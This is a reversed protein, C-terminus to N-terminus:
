ILVFLFTAGSSLVPGLTERKEGVKYEGVLSPGFFEVLPPPFLFPFFVAPPSSLTVLGLDQCSSAQREGVVSLYIELSLFASKDKM